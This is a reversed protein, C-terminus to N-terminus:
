APRAVAASASGISHWWRQAQSVADHDLPNVLTVATDPLQHRFWTRQRKAYQRTEIVVREIAASMSLTGEVAARMVGYGSAKWAPAEPPVTGRLREIEEVFGNAIMAHVREAIRAALIPGPDVVLYRVPRPAPREGGLHESLRGGTLLATEVARLQQTRGLHARAPDLRMCWRQLTERDLADLFPELAARQPGDLAPVEDLPEVFARVYLGTGGVVVPPTGAHQATACWTAADSAWRHASYREDPACVDIGYHSVRARETPTPKATGVDFGTYVQRSDASVIALGNAEALAMALASKGAATPGVICAVVDAQDAADPRRSSADLAGTSNM